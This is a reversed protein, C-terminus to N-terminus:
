SFIRKILTKLGPEPTHLSSLREYIEGIETLLKRADTDGQKAAKLWKIAEFVNEDVGEGKYYKVGLNYQAKADGQAAARRYWKVAKIKDEVMGKGKDYMVGLNYQAGAHGQTTATHYWEAAKALDPNTVDQQHYESPPKTEKPISKLIQDITSILDQFAPFTNSKNWNSLDITQIARFGLPPQVQELLVPVLIKRAYGDDAEEQVWTSQISNTSWAVVVCCATKLNTVIYERWPEGAPITRDWFVSWDQAELAKALAEAQEQDERAYSIFIDSM